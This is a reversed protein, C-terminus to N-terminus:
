ERGSIRAIQPALEPPMQENVTAQSCGSANRLTSDVVSYETHTRLHVFAM